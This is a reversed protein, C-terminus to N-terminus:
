RAFTVGLGTTYLFDNRKRGAVPNSQFRDSASASWSLWKTVKASIGLDFNVRYEGTNSLNDFMRFSQVLSVTKNIALNYDDGWFFEGSRRSLTFFSEHNYNAGGLVDFRSRPNRVVHWGFGGGFVARLDLNQFKDYEFSSFGNVFLRKGVNHDYSIGGRVASATEDSQGNVVAAAQITSFTVTIKDTRTTRSANFATTFTTTKANGVAGAFGLTGTGMWLESLRPHLLREFNHQEEPNRITQVDAPPAEVKGSSTAVAVKGESTTLTGQVTKGDKLIVTVPKDATISEVQDWPAVIVGFLDSKITVTKDDKKIITGTVRDGNKLVLQDAHLCLVLSALIFLARM